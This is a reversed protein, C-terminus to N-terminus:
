NLHVSCSNDLGHKIIREFMVKNEQQIWVIYQNKEFVRICM